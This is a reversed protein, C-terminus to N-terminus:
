TQDYYGEKIRKYEVTGLDRKMEMEQIRDARKMNQYIFYFFSIIFIIIFPPMIWGIEITM